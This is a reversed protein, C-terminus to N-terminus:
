LDREINRYWTISTQIMSDISDLKPVWSTVDKFKKSSAILREADGDRPKEVKYPIKTGSVREVSKLVQLVSYGKGLGINFADFKKHKLLDIAAVHADVLDNVHIYDRVPTGDFTNYKDGYVTVKTSNDKMVFNVAADVLRTYTKHEPLILFPGIRQNVDAGIVNFYRLSIARLKSNEATAYYEVSKEALLKSFGYPSIPIQVSCETIDKTAINGYTACSSSYIMLNVGSHQMASLLNCTAMTINRFYLEPYKVSEGVYANGAFHMVLDVRFKQFIRKMYDIDYVDAKEFVLSQEVGLERAYSMLKDLSKTTSRSLNDIVVITYRKHDLLTVVMQSGIYGTGGTVIITQIDLASLRSDKKSNCIGNFNSRSTFFFTYVGLIWTLLCFFLALCIINQFCKSLLVM